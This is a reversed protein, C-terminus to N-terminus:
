KGTHLKLQKSFTIPLKLVIYMMAFFLIHYDGELKRTPLNAGGIRVSACLVVENSADRTLKNADELSVEDLLPSEEAMERGELELELEGADM